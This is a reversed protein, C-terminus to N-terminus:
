WIFELFFFALVFTSFAVGLSALWTNGRRQKIALMGGVLSATTLVLALLMVPLYVFYRWAKGIYLAEIAAKGSAHYTEYEAWRGLVVLFVM